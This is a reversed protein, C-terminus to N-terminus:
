IGLLLQCTLLWQGPGSPWPSGLPGAPMRGTPLVFVTHVSCRPRRTPSEDTFLVSRSAHMGIPLCVCLCVQLIIELLPRHQSLLSLPHHWPQSHPGKLWPRPCPLLHARGLPVDVSLIMSELVMGDQWIDMDQVARLRHCCDKSWSFVHGSWFCPKM